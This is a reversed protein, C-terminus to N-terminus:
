EAGLGGLAGMPVGGRVAAAPSTRLWSRSDTRAQLRAVLVACVFVFVFGGPGYAGPRRLLRVLEAGLLFAGPQVIRLGAVAEAMVDAVGGVHVVASVDVLDHATEVLAALGTM